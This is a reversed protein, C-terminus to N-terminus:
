ALTTGCAAADRWARFPSCILLITTPKQDSTSTATRARAAQPLELDVLLAGDFLGAVDPPVAVVVAAWGVVVPQVM